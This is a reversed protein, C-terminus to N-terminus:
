MAPLNKGVLMSNKGYDRCELGLTEFDERTYAHFTHRMLSDDPLRLGHRVTGERLMAYEEGTIKIDPAERFTNAMFLDSHALIECLEPITLYNVANFCVVCPWTRSVLEGHSVPRAYEPDPETYPDYSLNGAPQRNGGIELVDQGQDRFRKVAALMDPNMSLYRKPFLERYRDWDVPMVPRWTVYGHYPQLWKTQGGVTATKAADYESVTGPFVYDGATFGRQKANECIAPDAMPDDFHRHVVVGTWGHDKLVQGLVPANLTAKGSAVVYGAAGDIWRVLVPGSRHGRSTTAFAGPHDKVPVGITGYEPFTREYMAVAALAEQIDADAAERESLPTVDSIFYEQRIAKAALALHEDFDCPFASGDATVAIQRSKAGDPRGAFIINARAGALTHRAAEILRGDDPEDLLEYGILCCRPNRPKIAGIARSTDESTHVPEQDAVGAAMIFADFNSANATVWGYYESTDRVTVLEHIDKPVGVKDAREWMVLTVDFGSQKALYGATKLALGNGAMGTVSKASDPRDPISGASIMINKRM